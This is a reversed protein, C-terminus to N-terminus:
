RKEEKLLRRLLIEELWLLVDGKQTTVFFGSIIIGCIKM